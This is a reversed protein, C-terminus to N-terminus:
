LGIAKDAIIREVADWPVEDFANSVSNLANAVTQAHTLRCTAVVDRYVEAPVQVDDVFYYAQGYTGPIPPPPRWEIRFNPEEESGDRSTANYVILADGKEDSM